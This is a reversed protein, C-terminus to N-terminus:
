GSNAPRGAYPFRWWAPLRRHRARDHPSHGLWAMLLVMLAMCSLFLILFTAGARHALVLVIAGALMPICTAAIPWCYWRDDDRGPRPPPYRAGPTPLPAM